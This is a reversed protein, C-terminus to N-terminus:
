EILRDSLFTHHATCSEFKHSELGSHRRWPIMISALHQGFEEKRKMKWVTLTYRCALNHEGRSGAGGLCFVRGFTPLTVKILFRGCQSILTRFESRGGDLQHTVLGQDADLEAVLRRDAHVGVM